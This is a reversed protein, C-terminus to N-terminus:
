PNITWVFLTETAAAIVRVEGSSDTFILNSSLRGGLHFEDRLECSNGDCRILRLGRLDSTPLVLHDVDKELEPLLIGLDLNRSGIVHNTVGLQFSEIELADEKLTYRQLPGGIHPTRVAYARGDRSVFLNLWRFGTGIPQAEASLQLNSNELSLLVVGAGTANSSRTALLGKKKDLDFPTIRRQEFAFPEPLTYTAVPELTESDFVSISTAELKDGLVGHAYRETPDTFLVIERVADGDLDALVIEVDPLANVQIRAIETFNLDLLLLTQADDSLVVLHADNLCVPRHHLLIDPGRLDSEYRALRGQLIGQLSGGCELLSEGQWGESVNFAGNETIFTLTGEALLAAVGENFPELWVAPADLELTQQNQACALSLTVLVLLSVKKM